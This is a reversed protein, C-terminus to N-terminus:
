HTLEFIQDRLQTWVDHIPLDPLSDWEMIQLVYDKVKSRNLGRKQWTGYIEDQQNSLPKGDLEKRFLFKVASDPHRHIFEVLAEETIRGSGYVVDADGTGDDAPPEDLGEVFDFDDMPEPELELSPVMEEEMAPAIQPAGMTPPQMGPQMPPATQMSAQPPVGMAHQPPQMTGYSSSMRQQTQGGGPVVIISLFLLSAVLFTLSYILGNLYIDYRNKDLYYTTNGFAESVLFSTENMGSYFYFVGAASAGVVALLSYLYINLYTIPPM